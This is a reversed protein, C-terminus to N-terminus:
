GIFICKGMPIWQLQQALNNAIAAEQEILKPQSVSELFAILEERLKAKDERGQAVLDDGNLTLEANPIPISKMKSRILGLLERALALAYQRIWQRGWSNITGYPINDFPANSPGSVGYVSDDEFSPNAPDQPQAVRVWLRPVAATNTPTPFIRINGGRVEYGYNSRRVRYATEMMQRRLVDEFVPLVHFVTAAVFSDNNFEAALFNTVNSSNLFMSQMAIPSTHFVDIIRLKGNWGPQAMSSILTGSVGHKLESYINYDQRGDQLEFYGLVSDYSGGIGAFSAYPEAQRMLFELTKHLYKNTYSGSSGTPTGLINVLEGKIHM